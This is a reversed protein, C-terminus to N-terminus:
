LQHCQQGALFQVCISVGSEGQTAAFPAFVFMGPVAAVEQDAYILPILRREWPPIGALQYVKKLKHRHRRGPLRVREGGSRWRLALTKGQIHRIAIGESSVPDASLRLGPPQLDLTQSWDWRQMQTPDITALVPMAYLGDRYRRIEAQGWTVLGGGTSCDCQAMLAELRRRPPARFGQRRLWFRLVNRARAPALQNIRSVSLVEGRGFVHRRGSLVCGTMDIEAMEDLLHGTEGMQLALQGLGASVEPWRQRLQPVIRQRLYNRALRTDANTPDEVWRLGHTKAYDYLTSRGVELLPRILRGLGLPRVAPMAALGNVGGGRLLQLLVTEAQDDGHHATVVPSASTIMDAFWAYRARRANQELSQQPRKTVRLRESHCQVAYDNCVAQCHEAWRDSYSTLGHNAHLASVTVLGQNRLTVLAHLLAHSDMGGSYAVRLHIGPELGLDRFLVDQLYKASFPRGAGAM